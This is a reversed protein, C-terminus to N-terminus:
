NVWHLADRIICWRQHSSERPIGELWYKKQRHTFGEDQKLDIWYDIYNKLQTEDPPMMYAILLPFSFYDPVVASFGDNARAFTSAQALSWFVLDIDKWYLLQHPNNIIVMTSKPFFKKSLEILMPSDFCGITLNLDEIINRKSIKEALESRVLIALPTLHYPKSITLVKLRDITVYISGIAIDFKKNILDNELNMWNYPIFELKVNMDQALKYMLAVDYGVLQDKKNWFCYPNVDANYGIRIIGTKRIRDLLDENQNRSHFQPVQSQNKYIVAEVGQTLNQELSFNMSTVKHEKFVAPGITRFCLIIVGITLLGGLLTFFLKSKNIKLKGYFSLTSLLSVFAFGIVSLAVQGYRTFTSTLVYLSEMGPPFHYVNSIFSVSDIVSSPSGITSLVTLIPLLAIGFPSVPLHYHLKCFFFFLAVKLNGLQAFPYALSINTGIVDSVKDDSICEKKVFNEVANTIIPLSVVSLTTVLSLIIAERIELMFERYNITTVASIMVPLIWFAFVFAGLLFVLVYILLGGIENVSLTGASHAFLAFVGIPALKVIWNWIIVCSVKILELIELYAGKREVKQMAFGYLVAFVVVAPIYNNVLVKFLNGPIFLSVVDLNGVERGPLIVKQQEPPPFSMSLLLMALLVVTWAILYIYWAKGILRKSTAPTLKGLGFLLSSILYPYVCMALLHVYARGIFEFYEAYNGIFIGTIIGALAGILVRYALKGSELGSIKKNNKLASVM